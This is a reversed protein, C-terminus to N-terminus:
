KESSISAPWNTTKIPGLPHPFVVKSLIILLSICGVDPVIKTFPDSMEIIFGISNRRFIPYTM